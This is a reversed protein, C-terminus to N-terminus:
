LFRSVCEFLMSPVEESMLPEQQQSPQFVQCARVENMIDSNIGPWWMIQCVRHKTAEVDYHSGHLYALVDRQLASLAVTRPGLLVLEGDHYLHDREKWYLM